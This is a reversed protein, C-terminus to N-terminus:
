RPYDMRNHSRLYTGAYDHEPALIMYLPAENHVPHDNEAPHTSATIDQLKGASSTRSIIVSQRGGLVALEDPESSPGGCDPVPNNPSPLNSHFAAM